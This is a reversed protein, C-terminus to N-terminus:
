SRDNGRTVRYPHPVYEVSPQRRTPQPYLNMLRLINEPMDTRVPLGLERAREVTIPYDHTWTGSALLKALETAKEAPFKDALLESVQYQMQVLAKEAQDALILTKDDVEAIPKRHVAQLISAAPYEGLQPDVPGLVSHECMVIEDVALAILTGGSMAYHPVFVTVKGKHKFVARAIQTAALVLGGPTHLILDLPIEPDTLHIARLVEESDNIDIYRFVPFGLFSMTEQRHVLLIVRSKREREIITILRKRSAELLRQTIVPQLASLMFFLWFLDMHMTGLPPPTGVGM